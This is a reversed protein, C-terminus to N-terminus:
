APEVGDDETRGSMDATLMAPEWDLLGGADAAGGIGALGGPDLRFLTMTLDQFITERSQLITASMKWPCGEEADLKVARGGMALEGNAGLIVEM